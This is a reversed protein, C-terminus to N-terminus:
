ANVIYYLPGEMLFPSSIYALSNHWCFALINPLYKSHYLLQKFIYLYERFSCDTTFKFCQFADYM